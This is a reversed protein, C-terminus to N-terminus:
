AVRRCEERSLGALGARWTGPHMGTALCREVLVALNYAPEATLACNVATAARSGDGVQWRLIALLTAPPAAHSEPAAAVIRALRDAIAAWTSPDEQMLDWLVTDRVQVDRIAVLVRAMDAALLESRELLEGAAAIAADRSQEVVASLGQICSAVRAGAVPDPDIDSVYDRRTASWRPLGWRAAQREAEAAPILHVEPAREPSGGLGGIEVRGPHQAWLVDDGRPSAGLTWGLRVGSARLADHAPRCSARDPPAPPELSDGASSYAILHVSHPPIGGAGVPPLPPLVVGGARDWRLVLTVRHHVDVFVACLSDEPWYGLM